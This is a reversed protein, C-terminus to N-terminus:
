WFVKLVQEAECKYTFGKKELEKIILNRLTSLKGEEVQIDYISLLEPLSIATTTYGKVTADAIAMSVVSMVTKFQPTIKRVIDRYYKAKRLKM